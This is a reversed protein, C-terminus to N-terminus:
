VEWGKARLKARIYERAKEEDPFWRDDRCISVRFGSGAAYYGGMSAGADSWLCMMHLYNERWTVARKRPPRQALDAEARTLRLLLRYALQHPKDQWWEAIESEEPGGTLFSWLADLREPTLDAGIPDGQDTLRQADTQRSRIATLDAASM